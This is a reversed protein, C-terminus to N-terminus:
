LAACGPQEAHAAVLQHLEGAGALGDGIRRAALVRGDQTSCACSV